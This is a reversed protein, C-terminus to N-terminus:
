LAKRIALETMCGVWWFEDERGEGVVIHAVGQIHGYSGHASPVLCFYGQCGKSVPDVTIPLLEGCGPETFFVVQVRVLGDLCPSKEVRLGVEEPDM